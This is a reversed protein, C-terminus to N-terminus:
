VRFEGILRKYAMKYKEITKDVIDQPLEWENNNKIWDRAFQKDYSMQEHGPEYDDLNWFRSSDPTMLEDGLILLGKEDIGFEFKTDAIIIGKALAYESCAKYLAISYDKLQRAYEKGRGPLVEELYRESEEYTIYEDHKGASAKISPTYIPEELKDSELLHEPLKVGCILGCERYGSWASGSIYGRVICEIPLMKLKKCLMVNGDYKSNRFCDPLMDKETTIMHNPIISETMGFWFESMKTLIKGKDEIENKLIVDFCSIRNTAVIVINEGADFIERVKGTKMPKINEM